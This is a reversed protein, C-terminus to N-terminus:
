RDAFAKWWRDPPTRQLQDALRRATPSRLDAAATDVWPQVDHGNAQYERAQILCELRDADRALRAEASGQGEYDDVLARVARGLEDPFGAV